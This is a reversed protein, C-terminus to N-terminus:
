QEDKVLTVFIDELSSQTTKLDKFKIGADHLESLLATIGTREAQTDYIYILRAGDAALDLDYPQLEPPVSSIKQLLELTLQKRGMKRMLEAKEEVLIIEGNNIVGVRDAIEEAEDIYHTTLIITVGSKRLQRILRWATCSGTRQLNCIGRWLNGVLPRYAIRRTYVNLQAYLEGCRDVGCCKRSVRHQHWLWTEDGITGAYVQTMATHYGYRCGDFVAKPHSAIL